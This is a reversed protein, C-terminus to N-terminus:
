GRPQARSVPRARGEGGSEGVTSTLVPNGASHLDKWKLGNTSTAFYMQEDTAHGETGTFHAFLYGAPKQKAVAKRVTLTFSRTQGAATATLTVKRDADSPRHVVGAAVKGSAKDSVVSPESSTWSIATGNIQGVTPLTISSRVDDAHPIELADLDEKAKQAASKAAPIILTFTKTTGDYSATLTVKADQAGSTPRTVRVAGTAADIVAAQSSSTWSITRGNSSLPLTFDGSAQAPVSTRLATAVAADTCDYLRFNDIRGTFYEGDVWNAKGVQVIGGDAGLVSTLPSASTKTSTQQLKGDIYLATLGDAMVVNVHKWSASSTGQVNADTVRTSSNNYREVTLTKTQDMVGLYHEKGFTQATATPAAYFAWGQSSPQAAQSDYSIAIAHRGKLLAGGDSSTLSLWDDKGLTLATSGDKGSATAAAGNIVAHAKGTADTLTGKQGTTVSNFDFDALLGAKTEYDSAAGIGESQASSASATGPAAARQAAQATPVFAALMPLAALAAVTKRWTIM